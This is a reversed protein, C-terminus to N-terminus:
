CVWIISKRRSESIYGARDFWYWPEIGDPSIHAWYNNDIMDHAKLCASEKLKQNERLIGLGKTSGYDNTRSIIDAASPTKLLKPEFKSKRLYSELTSIKDRLDNIEINKRDICYRGGM